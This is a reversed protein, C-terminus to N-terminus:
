EWEWCGWTHSNEREATQKVQQADNTGPKKWLMEEEQCATGANVLSDTRVDWSKIALPLAPFPNGQLCLQPIVLLGEAGEWSRSSRDIGAWLCLVSISCFLQHWKDKEPSLGQGM